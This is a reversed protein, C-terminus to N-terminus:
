NYSFEIYERTDIHKFYDKNNDSYMYMYDDPNKLGKKIANEFAEEPDRDFEEEESDLNDVEECWKCELLFPLTRLDDFIGYVDVERGDLEDVWCKMENYIDEGEDKIFLEKKFIIKKM